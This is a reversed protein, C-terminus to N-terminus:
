ISRMIIPYLPAYRDEVDETIGEEYFIDDWRPGLDEYYSLFRERCETRDMRLFANRHMRLCKKPVHAPSISDWSRSCMIVEVTQIARNVRSVEKRYMQIRKRKAGEAPYFFDAFRYALGPYTKSKERPLWKALYTIGDYDERRCKLVDQVFTKKTFSLIADELPPIRRMLEWVDKWCGYEPILPIFQTTMTPNIRYLEMM